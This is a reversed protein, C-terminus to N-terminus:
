VSVIILKKIIVKEAPSDTKGTSPLLPFFFLFLPIFYHQKIDTVGSAQPLSMTQLLKEILVRQGLTIFM